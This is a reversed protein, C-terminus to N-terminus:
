GGQVDKKHNNDFNIQMLQLSMLFKKRENEIQLESTIEESMKESHERLLPNDPYNIKKGKEGMRSVVHSIAMLMYQGQMWMEEDRMEQKLKYADMFPKLDNPTGEFIREEPVGIALHQPLVNKYFM